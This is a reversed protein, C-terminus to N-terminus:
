EHDVEDRFKGSPREPSGCFYSCSILMGAKSAGDKIEQTLQRGCENTCNPSNCFTKDRYCMM